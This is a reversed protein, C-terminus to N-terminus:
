HMYMGALLPRSGNWAALSQYSQNTEWKKITVKNATLGHHFCPPMRTWDGKLQIFLVLVQIQNMRKAWWLLMVM